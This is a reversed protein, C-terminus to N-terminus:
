LVNLNGPFSDELNCFRLFYKTSSPSPIKFRTWSQLFEVGLLNRPCKRLPRIKLYGNFKWQIKFIHGERFTSYFQNSTFNQCLQVLNLIRLGEEVFYLSNPWSSCYEPPRFLFFTFFDRKNLLNTHSISKFLRTYM